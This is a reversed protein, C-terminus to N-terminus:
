PLANICAIGVGRCLHQLDSVNSAPWYQVAAHTSNRHWLSKCLLAAAFKRLLWFVVPCSVGLTSCSYM